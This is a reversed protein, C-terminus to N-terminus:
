FDYPLGLKTRIRGLTDLSSNILNITWNVKTKGFYANLFNNPRPKVKLKKFIELEKKRKPNNKGALTRTYSTDRPIGIFSVGALRYETNKIAKNDIIFKIIKANLATRSHGLDVAFFSIELLKPHTLAYMNLGGFIKWMLGDKEKHGLKRLTKCFLDKKNIDIFFDLDNIKRHPSGNLAAPIISGFLKHKIKNKKLISTLIKLTKKVQHQNFAM